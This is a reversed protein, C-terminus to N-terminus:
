RQIAHYGLQRLGAEDALSFATEVGEPLPKMARRFVDRFRGYGYVLRLTHRNEMVLEPSAYEKGSGPMRWIPVEFGGPHFVTTM